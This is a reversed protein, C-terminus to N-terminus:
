ILHGLWLLSTGVSLFAFILASKVQYSFFNKRYQHLFGMAFGLFVLTILLLLNQTHLSLWSFLVSADIFKLCVLTLFSVGLTLIHQTKHTEKM